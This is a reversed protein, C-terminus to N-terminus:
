LDVEVLEPTDYKNGTIESKDSWTEPAFYDALQADGYQDIVKHTFAARRWEVLLLHGFPSGSWSKSIEVRLIDGEFILKVNKDRLGTCQGVTATDVEVQIDEIARGKSLDTGLPIIFHHDHRADPHTFCFYYGVVWEGNDIRKGRFLYRENM